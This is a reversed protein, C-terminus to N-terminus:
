PRGRHMQVETATVIFQVLQADSLSDIDEGAPNLGHAAIINLLRPRNLATLEQRLIDVSRAGVDFPDLVAEPGPTVARVSRIRTAPETSAPPEPVRQRVTAPHLARELAGQLFVATLGSAWYALDHRNPQRSEVPGVVLPGDDDLSEYELWGEWQGDEAHRGVARAHFRGTAHRVPDTFSAFTEAM